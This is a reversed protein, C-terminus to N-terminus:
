QKREKKRKRMESIVGKINKISIYYIYLIVYFLGLPKKREKKRKYQLTLIQTLM